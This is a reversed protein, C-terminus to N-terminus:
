EETTTDEATTDTATDETAADETTTDEVVDDTTVNELTETTGETSEETEEKKETVQIDHMSIKDWVDDYVKIKTDKRWKEITDTVAESKREEMISNLKATTAEQDFASEM